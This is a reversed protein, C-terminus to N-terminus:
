FYQLIQKTLTSEHGCNNIQVLTESDCMLLFYLLKYTNKSCNQESNPVNSQQEKISLQKKAINSKM